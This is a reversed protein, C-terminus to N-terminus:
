CDSRIYLSGWSIVSCSSVLAAFISVYMCLMGSLCVDCVCMWVCGTRDHGKVQVQRHGEEAGKAPSECADWGRSLSCLYPSTRQCEGNERARCWQGSFFPFFCLVIFFNSSACSSFTKSHWPFNLNGEEREKYCDTAYLLPLSTYFIYPLFLHADSFSSLMILFPLSFSTITEM